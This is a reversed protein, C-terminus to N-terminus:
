EWIGETREVAEIVSSSIADRTRVLEATKSAAQLHEEPLLTALLNSAEALALLLGDRPRVETGAEGADLLKQLMAGELAGDTMPHATSGPLFSREQHESSLVQASELRGILRSRLDPLADSLATLADLVTGEPELFLLAEQLLPDAPPEADTDVVLRGNRWTRIHGRLRLEALVAGRLGHDIALFASPHITGKDDHLAFLVLADPLSIM